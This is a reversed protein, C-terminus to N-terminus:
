TEDKGLELSLAGCGAAEHDQARRTGDIVKGARGQRRPTDALM